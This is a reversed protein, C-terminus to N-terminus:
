KLLINKNQMLYHLKLPQLLIDTFNLTQKKLYDLTVIEELPLCKSNGKDTLRDSPRM